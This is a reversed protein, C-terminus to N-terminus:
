GATYFTVNLRADFSMWQALTREAEYQICRQREIPRYALLRDVDLTYDLPM